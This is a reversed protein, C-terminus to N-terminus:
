GKEAEARIKSEYKGWDVGFPPNSLMYHFTESPFGDQDTLSNGYKIRNLDFGKLLMDSKCIAYSEPNLEQGFADLQANDNLERLYESAISLMGGTGAAPDYITRILHPQKLFQKDHAFLLHVILKIVERPTFHDGAEENAAESTRRVLEEYITGMMHNDITK